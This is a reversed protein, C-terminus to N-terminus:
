NTEDQKQALMTKYVGTWNPIVVHLIRLGVGERFLPVQYFLRLFNDLAIGGEIREPKFSRSMSSRAVQLQCSSDFRKMDKEWREFRRLYKDTSFVAGVLLDRATYAEVAVRNFAACVGVPQKLNVVQAYKEDSGTVSSIWTPTSFHVRRARVLVDPSITKWNLNKNKTKLYDVFKNEIELIGLSMIQSEQIDQTYILHALHRVEKLAQLEKGQKIGYLLRLRAWNVLESWDPTPLAWPPYDYKIFESNASYIQWYDYKAIKQMWSFDSKSFDIQDAKTVWSKLAPRDNLVKIAQYSLAIEFPPSAFRQGLNMKSNLYDGADSTRPSLKFFDEKAVVDQDALYANWIQEELNKEMTSGQMLQRTLILSSTLLLVVVSAMSLSTVWWPNLFWPRNARAIKRGLQRPDGLSALTLQIAQDESIQKGCLDEIASHLHDEIEFRTQEKLVKSRIPKLLEEFYKKVHPNQQMKCGKFRHEPSCQRWPM